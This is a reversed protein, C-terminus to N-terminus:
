SYFPLVKKLPFATWLFTQFASIFLKCNESPQNFLKCYAAPSAQFQVSNAFVVNNQSAHRGLLLAYKLCIMGVRGRTFVIIANCQANKQWSADSQSLVDVFTWIAFLWRSSKLFCKEFTTVKKQQWCKCNIDALASCFHWLNPRRWALVRLINTHRKPKVWFHTV